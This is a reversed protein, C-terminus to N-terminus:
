CTETALVAHAGKSWASGRWAAAVLDQRRRCERLGCSRACARLGSCRLRKGCGSAHGACRRAVVGSLGGARLRALLALRHRSRPWVCTGHLCLLVQTLSSGWSNRCGRKSRLPSTGRGPCSPISRLPGGVRWPRGRAPGLPRVTSCPHRQLRHRGHRGVPMVHARRVCLACDGGRLGGALAPLRSLSLHPPGAVGRV